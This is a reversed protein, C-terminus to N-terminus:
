VNLLEDKEIGVCHAYQLTLVRSKQKPNVHSKSAYGKQFDDMHPRLLCPLVQLAQPIETWALHSSFTHAIGPLHVFCILRRGYLNRRITRSRTTGTAVGCRMRDGGAERSRVRPTRWKSITTYRQSVPVIAEVTDVTPVGVGDVNAGGSLADLM